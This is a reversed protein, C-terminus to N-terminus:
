GRHGIAKWLFYMDALQIDRHEDLTKTAGGGATAILTGIGATAAVAPVAGALLGCTTALGGLVIGVATKKALTSHATELRLRIARLEPEILDREIEKALALATEAAATKLRERLAERLRDRFREFGDQNDRRIRILDKVSVNALVPLSLSFAIDEATPTRSQEQLIQRHLWLTSALPLGAARAALVDATLHTAYTRLIDRLVHRRVSDLDRSCSELALTQHIIIESDPHRFDFDVKDKPGLRLLVDADQSLYTIWKEEETLLGELGAERLHKEFHVSCLRKERFEVLDEAGISRLYLVVQIHSLLRSQVSKSDWHDAVDRTVADDVVIRDFYFWAQRFLRDVQFRRCSDDSCDLYGSLDLGCGAVIAPGSAVPPTDDQRNELALEKLSERVEPAQLRAEADHLSTIGQVDLWNYLWYRSM